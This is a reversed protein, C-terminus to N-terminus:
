MPATACVSGFVCVTKLKNMDLPNPRHSLNFERTHLRGSQISYVSLQTCTQKLKHWYVIQSIQTKSRRIRKIIHHAKHIFIFLQCEIM